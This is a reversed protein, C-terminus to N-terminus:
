GALDDGVGEPRLYVIVGRGEAQIARMSARLTQSTPGESSSDLDSFIDGLVNRRHMRVLTPADSEVVRGGMVPAIGDDACLPGLLDRVRVM